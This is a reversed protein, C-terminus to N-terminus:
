FDFDNEILTNNTVASTLLPNLMDKDDADFIRLELVKAETKSNLTMDVSIKRNDLLSDTKDLLISKVQTVPKLNDFIACIINREKKESSVAETQLLKFRLRSAQISLRQGLVIVGVKTKKEEREQSCTILPILIEQLAAGGHAFMYGGAPAALRIIGEPMGVMLGDTGKMESVETLPFKIIHKVDSNDKTIYYRTKKEISEDTVSVKDKEKYEIDNFLFGHDSTIYVKTVNYSSLIKLVLTNLEEIAERCSKVVDSSTAGHSKEDITNHMVYVLPHKFIERNKNKDYTAVEKFDVCIAEDRRTNLYDSRKTTSDLIKGDVTMTPENEENNYFALEDYPFLGLKTFKTETPLMALMMDLRASHKQRILEQLLEQAVEYRLADSVIVVIKKQEPKVYKNYFDQQKNLNLKKYGDTEKLCRSWELNLDNSLKIYTFDIVKKADQITNFLHSTPDIKFYKELSQRYLQDIIYFTNEYYSVYDNSSDLTFTGLKLRSEHFQAASKVYEIIKDIEESPAHKLEIDDLREIVHVPDTELKNQILDKLIPYCIGNSMYHYDADTGYWFVLDDERIDAGATEFIRNLACATEDNTQAVELIRNMRGIILSDEIFYKRYNDAKSEALSQTIANYKFVKVIGGITNSSTYDLGVGFISKLKKQLREEIDKTERLKGFFEAFKDKEESLLIMTLIINDWDQVKNLGLYHCIIGKLAIDESITHDEYYPALIKLMKDTQLIKVNKEVFNVMTQPIGYQQIFASYDNNHFEANAVLIDMFPFSEQLSKVKLPSEQHFMFIVKDEAWENDMRYKTTFWDGKFDVYRYGDPWALDEFEAALWEDNFIFLARLKSDRKFYDIVKNQAPTM